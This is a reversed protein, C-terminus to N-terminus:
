TPSTQELPDLEKISTLVDPLLLNVDPNVDPCAHPPGPASFQIFPQIM